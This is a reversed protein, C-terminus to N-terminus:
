AALRRRALMAPLDPHDLRDAASGLARLLAWQWAPLAWRRGALGLCDRTSEPLCQVAARVLLRQLPRAVAPLLPIREMIGLFELVIASPELRTGMCALMARFGAEDAPPTVVGYLLASAQNERWFRDRAAAPQPRVCRSYAELFGFTATAHVWALLEVESARYAVGDPTRGAIRAHGANIRDIMAETRSRAGFATMMAAYGTRRLRAIPDSRFSTHEWVGSRVRPEGLELLVAAIGGVLMAVPNAFVQWSLSEAPVLAAEGDPLLFDQPQTGPPYLLQALRRQLPRALVSLPNM